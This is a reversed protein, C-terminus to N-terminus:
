VKVSTCDKCPRAQVSTLAAIIALGAIPLKM